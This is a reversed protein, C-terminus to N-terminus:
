GRDKFGSHLQNEKKEQLRRWKMSATTLGIHHQKLQSDQAVLVKSSLVRDCQEQARCIGEGNMYAVSSKM